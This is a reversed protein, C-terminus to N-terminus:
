MFFWTAYVGAKLGFDLRSVSTEISAAQSSVENSSFVYDIGLGVKGSLIMNPVIEAHIGFVLDIM